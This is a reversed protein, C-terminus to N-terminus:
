EVAAIDSSAFWVERLELLVEIYKLYKTPAFSPEVSRLHTFWRTGTGTAVIRHLCSLTPASLQTAVLPYDDNRM